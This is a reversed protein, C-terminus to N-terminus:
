TQKSRGASKLVLGYSDDIFTLIEKDPITGDIVVTNWHKKNMHFGPKVAEYLERQELADAPDAKVNLRLSSDLPLLLFIKNRVKFVLTSDGFPMAEVTEVKSLCYDRISEVNLM